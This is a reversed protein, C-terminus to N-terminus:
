FKYGGLEIDEAFYDAVWARTENDYYASYDPKRFKSKILHPLSVNLNLHNCISQFDEELNEFKLIADVRIGDRDIFEVQRRKHYYSHSISTPFSLCFEKFSIGRQNSVDKGDCWYHYLSVMRDWPNRIVCFSFYNKWIDLEYENPLFHGKYSGWKGRFKPFLADIISSGATKPIHIFIFKKQHNIIENEFRMTMYRHLVEDAKAEQGNQQYLKALNLYHQFYYKDLYQLPLKQLNPNRKFAKEKVRLTNVLMPEKEKQMNDSSQRYYALPEDLHYVPFKEIIRLWLDYDECASLSEDFWGIKDLCARRVVVTPVPIFNGKFLTWSVPLSPTPFNKGWTDPFVGNENFRFMDSYILGIQPKAELVPIQKALKEPLWLDDDDLFAIYKGQSALIGTNRAASLGRNEQHIATIKNGFQALVAKTDDTSGDNVVIIEYDRYTQALVSEIAQNVLNARQYTPIIVSVTPM